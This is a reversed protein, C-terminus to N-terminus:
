SPSPVALQVHPVCSSNEALLFQGGSHTLQVTGQGVLEGIRAASGM